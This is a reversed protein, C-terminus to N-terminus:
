KEIINNRNSTARPRWCGLTFKSYLVFHSIYIHFCNSILVRWLMSIWGERNEGFELELSRAVTVCKVNWRQRQQM